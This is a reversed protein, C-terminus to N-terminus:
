FFIMGLNTAEEQNDSPSKQYSRSKFYFNQNDSKDRQNLKIYEKRNLIPRNYNRSRQSNSEQNKHSSQNITSRTRNKFNNSLRSEPFHDNNKNTKRSRFM